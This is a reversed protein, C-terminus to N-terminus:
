CCDQIGIMSYFHGFEDFRDLWERSCTRGCDTSGGVSGHGGEVGEPHDVLQQFTRYTGM